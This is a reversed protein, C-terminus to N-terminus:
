HLWKIRTGEAKALVLIHYGGRRATQQPRTAPSREPHAEPVPVNTSGALLKGRPRPPLVTTLESSISRVGTSGISRISAAFTGPNTIECAASPDIERRM